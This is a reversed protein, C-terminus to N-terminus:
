DALKEFTICLIIGGINIRNTKCQCFLKNTEFEKKVTEIKLRRISKIFYKIM